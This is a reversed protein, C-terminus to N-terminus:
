LWKLFSGSYPSDKRRDTSQLNSMEVFFFYIKFCNLLLFLWYSGSLFIPFNVLLHSIQKWKEKELEKLYTLLNRLFYLINNEDLLPSSYDVNYKPFQPIDFTIERHLLKFHLYQPKYNTSINIGISAPRLLWNLM